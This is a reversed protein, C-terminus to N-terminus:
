RALTQLQKTTLFADLLKKVVTKDGKPLHGAEQFQRPLDQDGFRTKAADETADEPLYDSTVGLADALRKLTDGSRRSAGRKLHGIRTCRLGALHGPGTQSIDKQKRLARLREGFGDLMEAM